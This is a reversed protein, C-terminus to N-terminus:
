FRVRVPETEWKKVSLEDVDIPRGVLTLSAMLRDHVLVDRPLGTLQVWVSPFAKGPKPAVFAERIHVDIDSM